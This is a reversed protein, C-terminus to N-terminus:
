KSSVGSTALLFADHLRDKINTSVLEIVFYRLRRIQVVKHKELSNNCKRVFWPLDFQYKWILFLPVRLYKNVGCRIPTTNLYYSMPKPGTTYKSVFVPMSFKIAYSVTTIIMINDKPLGKDILNLHSVTDTASFGIQFFFFFCLHILKHISYVHYRRGRFLFLWRRLM